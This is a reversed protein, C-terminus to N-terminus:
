DLPSPDGGDDGGADKSKAKGRSMPTLGLEMALQRASNMADAQIACAPNKRTGIILGEKAIIRQAEACRGVAVCYHALTAQVEITLSGRQLLVPAVRRWEAKADDSLWDPARPARQMTSM